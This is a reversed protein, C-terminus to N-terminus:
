QHYVTFSNSSSAVLFLGYEIVLVGLAWKSAKKEHATAISTLDFTILSGSRNRPGVRYIVISHQQMVLQRRCCNGSGGLVEGELCGYIM